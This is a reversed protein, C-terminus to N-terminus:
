RVPTTTLLAWVPGADVAAAAFLAAFCHQKHPTSRCQMNSRTSSPPHAQIFPTTRLQRRVGTRLLAAMPGDIRFWDALPSPARRKEAAAGWEEGLVGPDSSAGRSKLSFPSERREGEEEGMGLGGREADEQGGSLGVM